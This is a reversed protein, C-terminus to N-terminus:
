RDTLKEFDAHRSPGGSPTPPAVEGPSKVQTFVNELLRLLRTQQRVTTLTNAADVRSLAGQIGTNSYRLESLKSVHM